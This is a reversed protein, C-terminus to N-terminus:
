FTIVGEMEPCDYRHQLGVCMCRHWRKPVEQEKSIEEVFLAKAEEFTQAEVFAGCNFRYYM